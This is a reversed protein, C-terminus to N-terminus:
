SSVPEPTDSGPTTADLAEEPLNESTDLRGLLDSIFPACGGELIIFEKPPTNVEEKQKDTLVSSPVIETDAICWSKSASNVELFLSHGPKTAEQASLTFGDVEEVPRRFLTVGAQQAKGWVPNFLVVYEEYTLKHDLPLANYGAEYLARLSELTEVPVDQASGPPATEISVITAEPQPTFPISSDISASSQTCGSLLSVGVLLSAAYGAIRM